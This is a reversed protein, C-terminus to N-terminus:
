GAWPPGVSYFQYIIIHSYLRYFAFAREISPCRCSLVQDDCEVTVWLWQKEGEVIERKITAKMWTSIRWEDDKEWESHQELAYKIQRIEKSSDKNRKPDILDFYARFAEQTTAAQGSWDATSPKRGFM